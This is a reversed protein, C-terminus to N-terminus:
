LLGSQPIIWFFGFVQQFANSLQFAPGCSKVIDGRGNIIYTDNIIKEFFSFGCFFFDIRL